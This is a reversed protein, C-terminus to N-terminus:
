FNELSSLTLLCVIFYVVSSFNTAEISTKSSVKVPLDLIKIIDFDKNYFARVFEYKTLYLFDEIKQVEPFCFDAKM